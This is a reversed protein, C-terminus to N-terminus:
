PKAAFTLTFKGTMIQSAEETMQFGLSKLDGSVSLENFSGKDTKKTKISGSIPFKKKFSINGGYTTVTSGPKKTAVGNLEFQFQGAANTVCLDRFIQASQADESNSFMHNKGFLFYKKDFDNYGGYVADSVLTITKGKGELQLTATWTEKTEPHVFASFLWFGSILLLTLAQKFM